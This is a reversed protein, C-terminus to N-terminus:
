TAAVEPAPEAPVGLGAASRQLQRVYSVVDRVTGLDSFAEDPIEVGFKDEAAVIIEVMSLSSIELDDTIDAQYTVERAPIGSVKEVIEAFSSLIEQETMVM